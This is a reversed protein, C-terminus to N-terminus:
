WSQIGAHAAPPRRHLASRDNSHVAQQSVKAQWISSLFSWELLCHTLGSSQTSTSGTCWYRAFRSSRSWLNLNRRSQSLWRRRKTYNTNWTNVIQRGRYQLIIIKGSNELSICTMQPQVEQWHASHRSFWVLISDGFPCSIFPWIKVPKPRPEM